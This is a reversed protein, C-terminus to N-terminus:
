QPFWEYRRLLGDREREAQERARTASELAAAHADAIASLRDACLVYARGTHSYKGVRDADAFFEAVLARIAEPSGSETM